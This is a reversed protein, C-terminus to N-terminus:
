GTIQVVTAMATKLKVQLADVVVAVVIPATAVMAISNMVTSISQFVTGTTPATMATAM